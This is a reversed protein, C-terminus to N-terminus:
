GRAVPPRAAGCPRARALQTQRQRDSRIAVVVVLDHLAMILLDAVRDLSHEREPSCEARRSLDRQLRDRLPLLQGSARDPLAPDAPAARAIRCHVVQQSVGAFITLGGLAALTRVSWVGM